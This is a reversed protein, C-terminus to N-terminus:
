TAIAQLRTSYHHWRARAQHRRRWASWRYHFALRARSLLGAAYDRTLEELRVAEAVSLRIPPIGPPCSQGGRAPVPAGGAPIRLDADSAHDEAPGPGTVANAAPADPLTLTGAIAGRVAIARLQALATLVTHRNLAHYTRAQSQDWGFSDKGTKFTTEVPWRRGAIIIFYTLTAPRGEPAYCLYFTYENQERDARRILLFERPDETALLAWDSYRPGKTGDGCSRREFVAGSVAQDARVAATGAAPTVQYDCPIIVVYALKLARCADRFERSRGYVEDAAVWLFRLGAAALHKVQAIALAPKTAFALSGPIGAERRRRQDTAWREPMYLDFWAWAQGSATVLAAFVWTLCNEVTGTVGAHQPSVCATAKGKKLDATEDIALGPGIEDDPDDPLCQAALAPLQGRLKHWPWKYRTLLAQMRHPGAHGAKEALDWCNARTDRSLAKVYDLAVATSRRQKMVRALAASVLADARSGSELVDEISASAATPDDQTQVFM